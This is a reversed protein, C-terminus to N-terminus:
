EESFTVKITTVTKKLERKLFYRDMKTGTYNVGEM